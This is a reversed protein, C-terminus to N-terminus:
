PRPQRLNHTDRRINFREPFSDKGTFKFYYNFTDLLSPENCMLLLLLLL